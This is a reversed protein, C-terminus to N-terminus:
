RFVLVSFVSDSFRGVFQYFDFLSLSLSVLFVLAFRADLSLIM